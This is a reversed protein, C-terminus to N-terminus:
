KRRLSLKGEKAELIWDYRNSKDFSILEASPLQGKIHLTLTCKGKEKVFIRYSGFKDTEGAHIKGAANIEVKLGAAVPKGGETITGYMEGAVARSSFLLLTLLVLTISKM